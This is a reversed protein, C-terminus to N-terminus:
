EVEAHPQIQVPEIIRTRIENYVDIDLEEAVELSVALGYAVPSVIIGADNRCNVKIKINDNDAFPIARRGEFIEHQVTGRKVAHHDADIRKPALNQKQTLDNNLMEFWLSATRYRQTSVSIPSLWALTVTLRRWEPRSSLSPPLPLSYIHAQGDNLEGYGLLTARQGTCDLVRDIEPLGYGMWSALLNNYHRGIEATINAQRTYLSEVYEIISMGFASEEIIEKLRNGIEGWSCGHVLMAKLLPAIYTSPDIDQAQENFIELLSDYCIGASRSILATANSTGCSYATADLEGPSNGPSAAKNGPASRFFAPKITVTNASQEVSWYLQRGGYFILDPKISRRYGPGFASVPSPL